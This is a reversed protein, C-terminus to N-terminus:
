SVQFKKKIRRAIKDIISVPVKNIKALTAQLGSDSLDFVERGDVSKVLAAFAMYKPSMEETIFYLTQKMNQLEKRANEPEKIMFGLIRSIHTNLDRLDSGIGGDILMFRNYKHFRKIPLEDISDYLELVQNNYKLTEM